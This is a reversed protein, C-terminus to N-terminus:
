RILKPAWHLAPTHAPMNVNDGELFRSSKLQNGEEKLQSERVFDTTMRDYAGRIPSEKPLSMIWDHRARWDGRSAGRMRINRRVGKPPNKMLEYYIQRFEPHFIMAEMFIPDSQASAIDLVRTFRRRTNPLLRDMDVRGGAQLEHVQSIKHPDMFYVDVSQYKGGKWNLDLGRGAVRTDMLVIRARGSDIAELNMTKRVNARPVSEGLAVADSFIMSIERIAVLGTRLLYRRMHKLDKSNAHNVVTVQKVDPNNLTQLLSEAILQFRASASPVVKIGVNTLAPSGKGVIKFGGSKAMLQAQLVKGVTGSFGIIPLNPSDTVFNRMNVLAQHEYPMTLGTKFKLEWFRRTGIDMTPMWEGLHIPVVKKTLGDFRVDATENHHGTGMNILEKKVWISKHSRGLYKGIVPIGKVWTWMGNINWFMQTRVEPAIFVESEFADTLENTFKETLKNLKKEYIRKAKAPTMEIEYKLHSLSDPQRPAGEKVPEGIMSRIPKGLGELARIGANVEAIEADLRQTPSASVEPRAESRITELERSLNLEASEVKLVEAEVAKVKEQLLRRNVRSLNPNELATEMETILRTAKGRTNRLANTRSYGDPKMGASNPKGDFADRAEGAAKEFRVVADRVTKPMGQGTLGEVAEALKSVSGKAQTALRSVPSNARALQTEVSLELDVSRQARPVEAREAMLQKRLTTLRVMETPRGGATNEGIFQKLQPQWKAATSAAHKQAIAVVERATRGQFQFIERGLGKDISNLWELQEEARQIRDANRESEPKKLESDLEENLRKRRATTADRTQKLAQFEVPANKVGQVQIEVLMKSVRQELRALTLERQAIIEGAETRSSKVKFEAQAVATEAQEVMQDLAELAVKRNLQLIQKELGELRNKLERVTGELKELRQAELSGPELKDAKLKSIELNKAAAEEVMRFMEARMTKLQAANQGKAQPAFDNLGILRKAVARTLRHNNQAEIRTERATQLRVAAEKVKAEAIEIVGSKANGSKLAALEAEAAAHSRKYHRYVERTSRLMAESQRRLTRSASEPAEIVKRIHIYEAHATGQYSLFGFKDSAMADMMRQYTEYVANKKSVAKEFLDTREKVLDNVRERWGKQRADLEARIDKTNQTIRDRVRLGFQIQEAKAILAEGEPLSQFRRKLGNLVGDASSAQGATADKGLRKALAEVEKAMPEANSRRLKAALDILEKVQPRTDMRSYDMAQKQQGILEEMESRLSDRGRLKDIVSPKYGDPSKIKSPNKATALLERGLSVVKDLSYINEPPRSHVIRKQRDVLHNVERAASNRLVKGQLEAHSTIRATLEAVVTKGPSVEATLTHLERRLEFARARLTGSEIPDSGSFEALDKQAETSLVERVSDVSKRLGSEARKLALEAAEHAETGYKKTKLEARLGQVEASQRSISKAAELLTRNQGSVRGELRSLRTRFGATESKLAVASPSNAQIGASEKSIVREIADLAQSIKGGRAVSRAADAPNEGQLVKAEATLAEFNEALLKGGGRGWPNEVKMGEAMEVLGGRRAGGSGPKGNILTDILELQNNIATTRAKGQLGTKSKIIYLETVASEVRQIGEVLKRYGPHEMLHDAHVRMKQTNFDLQTKLISHPDSILGRMRVGMNRIINLGESVRSITALQQGITTAPAQFPADFEDSVIYLEDTNNAKITSDKGGGSGVKRQALEANLKSWTTVTIEGYNRTAKLEAEMQQVLNEQPTLLVPKRGMAKADAEIFSWMGETAVLTKGGGTKLKLFVRLTQSTPNGELLSRMFWSLSEFQVPRWGKLNYGKSNRLLWPAGDVNQVFEKMLKIDGPSFTQDKALTKIDQGLQEVLESFKDGGPNESLQENQTKGKKSLRADPREKTKLGGEAEVLGKERLFSEIKTRMKGLETKLRTSQPVESAKNIAVDYAEGARGVFSEANNFYNFRTEISKLYEIASKVAEIEGKNLNKTQEIQNQARELLKTYHEGKGNNGKMEMAWKDVAGTFEELFEKMAESRDGRKNLSDLTNKLKLAAADRPARSKTYPELIQEARAVTAKYAKTAFPNNRGGARASHRVVLAIDELLSRSITVGEYVESPNKELMKRAHHPNERFALEAQEVIANRTYERMRINNLMAGDEIGLLELYKWPALHPDKGVLDKVEDRLLRKTAEEIAERTANFENAKVRRGFRMTMIRQFMPPKEYHLFKLTTPKEAGQPIANALKLLTAPDSSKLYQEVGIKSQQAERVENGQAPHMPLIMWIYSEAWWHQAQIARKIRRETNGEYRAVFRDMVNRQLWSGKKELYNGREDMELGPGTNIKLGRLGYGIHHGLYGATQGVAWFKGVHDINTVMGRAFRMGGAAQRKLFGGKALKDLWKTAGPGNLATRAMVTEAFTAKTFKQGRLLKGGLNWLGQTGKLSAAWTNGVIGKNALSEAVGSLRTGSYATYPINVFLIWPNEAAWKMTHVSGQGAAELVSGFQSKEGDYLHQLVTVSGGIPAIMAAFSTVRLGANGIRYAHDKLLGAKFEPGLTDFRVQIQKFTEGIGRRVAGIEVGAAAARGAVLYQGTKAIKSFIRSGGGLVLSWKVIDVPISTYTHVNQVRTLHEQYKKLVAGGKESMTIPSDTSDLSFNMHTSQADLDAAVLAADADRYRGDAIMLVIEKVKPAMRDLEDRSRVYKGAIDAGPVKNLGEAVFRTVAPTWHWWDGHQERSFKMLQPMQMLKGYDRQLVGLQKEASKLVRNPKTLKSNIDADDLQARANGYIQLLRRFDDAMDYRQQGLKREEEPSLGLARVAKAFSASDPSQDVQTLTVAGDFMKPQGDAGLIVDGNADTLTRQHTTSEFSLTELMFETQVKLAEMQTLAMYRSVLFEQKKLQALQENTVTDAGKFTNIADQYIDLANNLDKLYGEYVRFKPDILDPPVPFTKGLRKAFASAWGPIFTGSTIAEKELQAELRSLKADDSLDGEALQHGVAAAMQIVRQRRKLKGISDVKTKLDCWSYLLLDHQYRGSERIQKPCEPPMGFTGNRALHTNIRKQSALLQSNFIIVQNSNYKYLLKGDRSYVYTGSQTKHVRVDSPGLQKSERVNMDDFMTNLRMWSSFVDSSEIDKTVDGVLSGYRVKLDRLGREVAARKKPSYTGAQRLNLVMADLQAVLEAREGARNDGKTQVLMNFMVQGMDTLEKGGREFLYQEVSDNAGRLIKTDLFAQKARAAEQEQNTERHIGADQYNAAFMSAPAQMLLGACLTWVLSCEAM